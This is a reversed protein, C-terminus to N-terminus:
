TIMKVVVQFLLFKLEMANITAKFEKSKAM